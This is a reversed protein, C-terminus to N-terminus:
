TPRPGTSAGNQFSRRHEGDVAAGGREVDLGDHPGGGLEAEGDVAAVDAEVEAAVVRRFVERHVRVAEDRRQLVLVDGHELAGGDHAVEGGAM